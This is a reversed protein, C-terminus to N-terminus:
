LVKSAQQVLFGYKTISRHIGIYGAARSTVPLIMDQCFGDRTIPGNPNHPTYRYGIANLFSVVFDFCNHCDEHYKDKKWQLETATDALRQDWGSKLDEDSEELLPVALCQCWRHYEQQVGTEDYSYVTGKSTTIGAHLNDDREYSICMYRGTNYSTPKDALVAGTIM